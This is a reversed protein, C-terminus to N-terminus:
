TSITCGYLSATYMITNTDAGESIDVVSSRDHTDKTGSLALFHSSLPVVIQWRSDLEPPSFRVNLIVAEAYIVCIMRKTKCISLLSAFLCYMRETQTSLCQQTEVAYKEGQENCSRNLWRKPTGRMSSPCGHVDGAHRPGTPKHMHTHKLNM